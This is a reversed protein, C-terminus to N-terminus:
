NRKGIGKEEAIAIPISNIGRMPSAVKKDRRKM